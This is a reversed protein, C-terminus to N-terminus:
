SGKFTYRLGWFSRGEAKNKFGCKKVYFRRADERRTSVDVSKAGQSRADRLMRETLKKGIGKGRMTKDVVVDEIIWVNGGLKEYSALQSTGVINGDLVAIYITVGGEEAVRKLKDFALPPQEPYLQCLLNQLARYTAKNITSIRDIRIDM